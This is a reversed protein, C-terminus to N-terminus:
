SEPVMGLERLVEELQARLQARDAALAQEGLMVDVPDGPVLHLLLFVLSVVGLLIPVTWLLRNFFFSM